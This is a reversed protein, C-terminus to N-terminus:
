VSENSRQIAQIIETTSKGAEYPIIAVRGGNRVVTETELLEEAKYDGSKTHIDPKIIELFHRPDPEEFITVYDVSALGAILEARDAETIIPRLPSKYSKVSSDSNVGVILIDGLARSAELARKHGVHLIDFAGNTTVIKKGQRKLETVKQALEDLSLIKQDTM